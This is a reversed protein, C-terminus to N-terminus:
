SRNTASVNIIMGKKVKISDGPKLSGEQNESPGADYTIDFLINEGTPPVPFALKVLDDFSLTRATVEKAEANVYITYPKPRGSHFHENDKLQVVEPGNEVPSGDRESPGGRFLELEAAIHGLVYLAAGTTPNPSEYKHGDIHIQVTSAKEHESM